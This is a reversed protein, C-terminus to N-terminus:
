PSKPPAGRKSAHAYGSLAKNDTAVSAQPPTPRPRIILCVIIYVIFLRIMWGIYFIDLLGIM